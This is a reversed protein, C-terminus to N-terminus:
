SAQRPSEKLTRPEPPAMKPIRREGSHAAQQVAQRVKGEAADRLYNNVLWRLLMVACPPVISAGEYYCAVNGCWDGMGAELSGVGSEGFHQTRVGAPRPAIAVMATRPEPAIM